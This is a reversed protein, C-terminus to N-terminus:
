NTQIFEVNAGSYLKGPVLKVVEAIRFIERGRTKIDM